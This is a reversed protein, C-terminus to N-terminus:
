QEEANKSEIFKRINEPLHIDENGDKIQKFYDAPNFNADLLSIKPKPMPFKLKQNANFVKDIIVESDEENPTEAWVEADEAPGKYIGTHQM